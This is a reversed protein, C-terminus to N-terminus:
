SMSTAFPGGAGDAGTNFGTEVNSMDMDIETLAPKEWVAKATDNSRKKM